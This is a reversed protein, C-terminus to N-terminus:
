FFLGLDRCFVFEIYEFDRDVPFRGNSVNYTHIYIATERKSFVFAWRRVIVSRVKLIWALPWVASTDATQFLMCTQQTVCCVHRSRSVTFGEASQCRLVPKSHLAASMDATHCVLVLRSRLVASMDATHCLLCRQQAVFCVHRGHPVATIDATDCLLCTQQTVCCVHSSCSVASLDATRCLLCTPQTM